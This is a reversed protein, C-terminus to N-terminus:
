HCYNRWQNRDTWSAFGAKKIDEVAKDFMEHGEEDWARVWMSVRATGNYKYFMKGDKTQEFTEELHEWHFLGWFFENLLKLM